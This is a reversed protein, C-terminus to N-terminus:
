NDKREFLQDDDSGTIEFPGTEVLWKAEPYEMKWINGCFAAEEPYQYPGSIHIAKDRIGIMFWKDMM